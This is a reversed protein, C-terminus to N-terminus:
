KIRFLHWDLRFTRKDYHSNFHFPAFIPKHRINEGSKQYRNKLLFECNDLREAVHCLRCFDFYYACEM